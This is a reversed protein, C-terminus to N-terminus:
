NNFFLVKAVRLAKYIVYNVRLKSKSVALAASFVGFALLHILTSIYQDTNASQREFVNLLQSSKCSLKQAIEFPLYREIYLAQLCLRKKEKTKKKIYHLM